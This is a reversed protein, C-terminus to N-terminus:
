SDRTVPLTMRTSVAVRNWVNITAIALILDATGDEGFAAVTEAWLADPVGDRGISTVADTLALAIREEATFLSSRPDAAVGPSAACTRM